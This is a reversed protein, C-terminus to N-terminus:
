QAAVRAVAFGKRKGELFAPKKHIPVFEQFGVVLDLLVIRPDDCDGTHISSRSRRGDRYGGNRQGGNWFLLLLLLFVVAVFFFGVLILMLLLLLMERTRYLQQQVRSAPRRGGVTGFSGQVVLVCFFSGQNGM